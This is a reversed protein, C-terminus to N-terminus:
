HLMHSRIYLPLKTFEKCKESFFSVPSHNSFLPLPEESNERERQATNAWFHKMNEIREPASVEDSLM